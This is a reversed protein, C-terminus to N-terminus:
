WRVKCLVVCHDSTGCGMGRVARVDQVYRLMDRKVLLLDIMSKIEVGERGRAKRTYKHLGRHKFYTNGVCLGRKEYFEM